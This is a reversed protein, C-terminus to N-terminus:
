RHLVNACNRSQCECLKLSVLVDSPVDKVKERVYNTDAVHREITATVLARFRNNLLHSYSIYNYM